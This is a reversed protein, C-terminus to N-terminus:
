RPKGGGRWSLRPAAGHTSGAAVRTGAPETPTVPYDALFGRLAESGSIAQRGADILLDVDKRAITLGTPIALLRTKEPGPPMTALAIHILAAKVDGCPAGDVVKGRACRAARVAAAFQQLQRQVTVLTEFNYRDIQNGTALGLISFLGGVAKRQAATPDQAGQGDISIVLIRRLHDYGAATIAQPSQALNAMVGGMFRLGLNDSIGGDSLHVYRARQADLYRELYRAQLGLRSLPHRRQQETVRTLWGPKRGGCDAAHNTITIPSFLGPFGNSAAVARAIPFENLDSCLIDFMEQTFAFPSGYSIDTATIGIIPRGRAALDKFTAGHFMTRDYVRAMFDNTGVNPDVLWTWNWPLLYIGWIYSNTDSYLFDKKYTTFTKDRYLGYYAATFGGGSVGSIADLEYLLPRPGQPTSVVVTRMGELAGYAFAASRKGGGSMAVLVMLDPAVASTSLAGFRYGGKSISASGVPRLDAAPLPASDVTRMSACGALLLSVLTACLAALLPSRREPADRDALRGAPRLAPRQPPRSRRRM